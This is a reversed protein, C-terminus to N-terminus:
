RARRRVGSGCPPEPARGSRRFTTSSASAARTSSTCTASTRLAVFANSGNGARSACCAVAGAPARSGPSRCCRAATRGPAGRPRRRTSSRRRSTSTRSRSAVHKGAPIGPGRVILPVRISPEYLLIKGTPVRHEGHFFGNDSTFIILTNDLEGPAALAAVITAVAEDVALLSELRQQYSESSRPSGRRRRAAAPQPHGAPKDSVDAENFSPPAPLPEARLPRPAPAGARPTALGRPDDPSARSAPAARSLAVSLFFPQADRRRRGILDVAKERTSTPRTTSAHATGYTM